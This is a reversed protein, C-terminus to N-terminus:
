RSVFYFIAVILLILIGIVSYIYKNLFNSKIEKVRKEEVLTESEKEEKTIPSVLDAFRGFFYDSMKKAVGNILRSGLQAIKGGVNVDVEYSLTTTGNEEKLKVDASGNAFGVPSLGEGSLTYSQNEQINSLTVTGSFTANMPGIQNTATANFVTSSEKDFSECGPICQKLINPNNLAKWVHEKKVNLKYSGALKM